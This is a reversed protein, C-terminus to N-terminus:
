EGLFVFVMVWLADLTKARADTNARIIAQALELVLVGGGSPPPPPPQEAVLKQAQLLKQTDCQLHLPLLQGNVWAQSPATQGFEHADPSTHPACGPSANM